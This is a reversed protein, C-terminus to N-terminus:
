LKGQSVLWEPKMIALRRAARRRENDDTSMLQRYLEPYKRQFLGWQWTSPITFAYEIIGGDMLPNKDGQKVLGASKIRQNQDLIDDDYEVTHVYHQDAVHADSVVHAKRRRGNYINTRIAM